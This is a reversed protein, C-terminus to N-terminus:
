GDREERGEDSTTNGRRRDRRRDRPDRGEHRRARPRAASTRPDIRSRSRRGSGGSGGVERQASEVPSSAPAAKAVETPPAAASPVKAVAAPAAPSAKAVEADGESPAPEEAPEPAEPAPAPTTTAEEETEVLEHEEVTAPKSAQKTAAQKAAPPRPAGIGKHTTGVSGHPKPPPALGAPSAAPRQKNKPGSVPPPPNVM